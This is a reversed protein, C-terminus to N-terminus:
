DDEKSSLFGNYESIAEKLHSYPSLGKGINEEISSNFYNVNLIEVKKKFSDITMKNCKYFELFHKNAEDLNKNEVYDSLMNLHKSFTKEDISNKYEQDSSACYLVHSFEDVWLSVLYRFLILENDKGLNSIDLFKRFRKLGLKFYSKLYRDDNFLKRYNIQFLRGLIEEIHKLRNTEQKETRIYEKKVYESVQMSLKYYIYEKEYKKEDDELPEITENYKFEVCCFRPVFMEKRQLNLINIPYYEINPTYIIPKSNKSDISYVNYSIDSRSYVFEKDVPRLKLSTAISESSYYLIYEYGNDILMVSDAGDYSLLEADSLKADRYILEYIDKTDVEDRIKNLADKFNQNITKEFEKKKMDYEDFLVDLLQKLYRYILKSFLKQEASSHFVYNLMISKKRFYEIANNIAIRRDFKQNAKQIGHYEFECQDYTFTYEFLDNFYKQYLETFTCKGIEKGRGRIVIVKKDDIRRTSNVKIDFVANVIGYLYDHRIDTQKTSM